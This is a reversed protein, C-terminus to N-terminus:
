KAWHKFIDSSMSFSVGAEAPVVGFATPSLPMALSLQPTIRIGRINVGVFLGPEVFVGFLKGTFTTDRNYPGGIAKNARMTGSFRRYSSVKVASIRAASGFEFNGLTRVEMRQFYARTYHGTAMYPAGEYAAFDWVSASVSQSDGDGLGFAYHGFSNSGRMTRGLALNFQSSVQSERGIFALRSESYGGSVVVRDTLLLAVNADWGGAPKVVYSATIEGKSAVPVTPHLGPVYVPSTTCGTLLVLAFAVLRRM